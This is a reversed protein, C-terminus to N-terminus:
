VQAPGAAGDEEVHGRRVALGPLQSSGRRTQLRGVDQQSSLCLNEERGVRRRQVVRRQSPSLTEAQVQSKELIRVGAFWELWVADPAVGIRHADVVEARRREVVVQFAW